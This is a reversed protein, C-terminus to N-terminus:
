ADSARRLQLFYDVEALHGRWHGTCAGSLLRWYAQARMGDVEEVYARVRYDAHRAHHGGTEPVTELAGESLSGLWEVADRFVADAYALTAEPTVRRAIEDASELSMGFPAVWQVALDHQWGERQRVDPRDRIWTNVAWDTTAPLHFLTFGLLNQGEAPRWLWDGAQAQGVVARLFGNVIELQRILLQTAKM